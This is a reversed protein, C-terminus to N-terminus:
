PLINCSRCKPKVGCECKQEQYQSIQSYITDPFKLNRTM